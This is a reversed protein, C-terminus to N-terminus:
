CVKLEQQNLAPLKLTASMTNQRSVRDEDALMCLVHSVNERCM